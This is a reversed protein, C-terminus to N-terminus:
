ARPQLVIEERRDFLEVAKRSLNVLHRIAAPLGDSGFSAEVNDIARGIEDVLDLLSADYQYMANLENENIKVEDFLGSYGYTARRVRDAFTRLKIAAAELDYILEIAGQRLLERQLASVRQELEQFRDAVVERLMKDAARRDQREQYGGFGPIKKLIRKFPDADAGIKGFIDQPLDSMPLEKEQNFPCALRDLLHNYPLPRLFL